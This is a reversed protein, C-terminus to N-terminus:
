RSLETLLTAPKPVRRSNISKWYLCLNDWAEPRDLEPEAAWGDLPSATCHRDPRTDSWIHGVGTLTKPLLLSAVM